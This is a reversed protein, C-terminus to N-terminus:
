QTFTLKATQSHSHILYLLVFIIDLDSINLNSVALNSVVLSSISPLISHGKEAVTTHVIM